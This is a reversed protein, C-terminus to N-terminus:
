LESAVPTLAFSRWNSRDCGCTSSRPLPRLSRTVGDRLIQRSCQCGQQGLVSDRVMLRPRYENAGAVLAQRAESCGMDHPTRHGLGHGDASRPGFAWIAACRGVSVPWSAEGTPRQGKSSGLRARGRVPRWSGGSHRRRHRSSACSELLRSDGAIKADTESWIVGHQLQQVTDSHPPSNWIKAPRPQRRRRRARGIGPCSSM